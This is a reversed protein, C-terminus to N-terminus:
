STGTMLAFALDFPHGRRRAHVDKEISLRSARDPYGLVWTCISAHAGALTKPDHNLINALHYHKEDDYLELVKDAHKVCKTLEGAWCYCNSALAHATTPMDSDGTAKAADLMEEVWPLSEVVRGQGVINFTLGWLIALLSDHRELSNALTLAPHLSTWIEPAPWGKLGMWATSLATRLGLESADRASSPPLSVIM